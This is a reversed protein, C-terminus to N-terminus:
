SVGGIVEVLRCIVEPGSTEPESNEDLTGLM